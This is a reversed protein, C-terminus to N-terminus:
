RSHFERFQARYEDPYNMDRLVVDTDVEVHHIDEPHARWVEKLGVDGRLSLIEDRYKSDFVVPHGRRGRYSPICVGKGAAWFADIVTRVVETTMLPQDVLALLFAGPEESVARLGCKVSSTMGERYDANVAIRVHKGALRGSVSEEEHGVVVVLEEVPAALLTEVIHEVVSASGFPLLQKMEGMRTSAGAALLIGRVPGRQGTAM